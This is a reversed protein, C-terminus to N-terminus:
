LIYKGSIVNIDFAESLAPRGRDSNSPDVRCLYRGSDRLRLMSVTLTSSVAEPIYSRDTSPISSVTVTHRPTDQLIVTNDHLWVINPRPYGEAECRFTATENENSSATDLLKPEVVCLFTNETLQM